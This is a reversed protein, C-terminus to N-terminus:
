IPLCSEGETNRFYLAPLFYFVQACDGDQCTFGCQDLDLPSLVPLMGQNKAPKCTSIQQEM